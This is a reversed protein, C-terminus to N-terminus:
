TEASKNTLEVLGFQAFNIQPSKTQNNNNKKVM